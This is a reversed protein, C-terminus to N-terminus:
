PGATLRRGKEHVTSVSPSDMFTSFTIGSSVYRIDLGLVVEENPCKPERRAPEMPSGLAFDDM